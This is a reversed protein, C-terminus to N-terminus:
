TDAEHFMTSFRGSPSAALASASGSLMVMPHSRLFPLPPCSIPFHWLGLSDHSDAPNRGSKTSRAHRSIPFLV